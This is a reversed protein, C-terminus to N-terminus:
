KITRVHASSISWFAASDKTAARRTWAKALCAAPEPIESILHMREPNIMCPNRPKQVNRILLKVRTLSGVRTDNPPRTKKKFIHYSYGRTIAEPSETPFSPGDTCTAQAIPFRTAPLNLRNERLWLSNQRHLDMM